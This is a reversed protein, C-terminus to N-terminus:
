EKGVPVLALRLSVGDICGRTLVTDAGTALWEQEQAPGDVVVVCRLTAASSRIWRMTAASAPAIRSDVVLVQPADRRVAELAATLENHVGILRFGSLARLLSRLAERQLGPPAALLVTVPLPATM